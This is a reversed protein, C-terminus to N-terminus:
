VVEHLRAHGENGGELVRKHGRAVEHRLCRVKPRRLSGFRAVNHVNHVDCRMVDCVVGGISSARAVERLGALERLRECGRAVRTAARAAEQSRERGRMACVNCQVAVRGM